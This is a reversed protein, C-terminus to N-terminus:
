LAKNRGKLIVTNTAGSAVVVWRYRRFNMDSLSLSFLKTSNSVTINNVVADANNDYFYVENWDATASNEDNSVELSLTLDGDVDIFKGTLSHDQYGDIVAGDATPYYHTDATINSTDVDISNNEYKENLPDTESTRILNNTYDYGAIILEKFQTTILNVIKGVATSPPQSSVTEGGIQNAVTPATDGITGEAAGGGAILLEDSDNVKVRRIEGDSQKVALLTKERNVDIKAREDAM